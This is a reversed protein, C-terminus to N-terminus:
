TSGSEPDRGGPHSDQFEKKWSLRSGSDMSLPLRRRGFAVQISVTAKKSRSNEGRFQDTIGVAM